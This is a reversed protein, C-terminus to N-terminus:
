ILEECGDVGFRLYKVVCITMELIFGDPTKFREWTSKYLRYSYRIENNTEYTLGSGQKTDICGKILVSVM